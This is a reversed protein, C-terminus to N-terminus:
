LGDAGQLALGFPTGSLTALTATYTHIRSKM